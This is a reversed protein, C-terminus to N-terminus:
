EGESKCSTDPLSPADLTEKGACGAESREAAAVSAGSEAPPMMERWHTPALPREWDSERVFWWDPIFGDEADDWEGGWEAMYTGAPQFGCSLGEMHAGYVTLLKGDDIVYPDSKHDHWVEIVRDKPASSIERWGASHTAETATASAVHASPSARSSGERDVGPVPPLTLAAVREALTLWRGDTAQCPADARDLATEIEEYQSDDLKGGPLARVFDATLEGRERTGEPSPSARRGSTADDLAALVSPYIRVGPHRLWSGIPRYSPPEMPVGPAVVYIPVGAAMAMGIEIYAGKLPFDDAEAYFVVATATTVEREIRSWLETLCETQGAQAEDIWTSIIPWGCDRFERWMAPRADLSARSAVYIRADPKQTM